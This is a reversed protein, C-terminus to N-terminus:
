NGILADSATAAPSPVQAYAVGGSVLVGALGVGLLIKRTRPSMDLEIHIKM